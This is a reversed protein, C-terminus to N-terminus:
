QPVSYCSPVTRDSRDSRIILLQSQSSRAGAVAPFRSGSDD